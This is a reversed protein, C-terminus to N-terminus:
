LLIRRSTNTTSRMVIVNHKPVGNYKPWDQLYLEILHTKLKTRSIEQCMYNAHNNELYLLVLKQKKLNNKQTHFATRIISRPISTLQVKRANLCLGLRIDSCPLKVYAPLKSITQDLKIHPQRHMTHHKSKRLRYKKQWRIQWKHIRMGETWGVCLLLFLFKFSFLFFLVLATALKILIM